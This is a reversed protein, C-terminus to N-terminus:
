LSDVQGSAILTVSDGDDTNFSALEAELKRREQAFKAEAKKREEELKQLLRRRVELPNTAQLQEPTPIDDPEVVNSLCGFKDVVPNKKASVPLPAKFVSQQHEIAPSKVAVTPSGPTTPEDSQQVVSAPSSSPKSSVSGCDSRPSEGGSESKSDYDYDVENEPSRELNEPEEVKVQKSVSATRQRKGNTAQTTAKARKARPPKPPERLEKLTTNFQKSFQYSENYALKLRRSLEQYWHMLIHKPVDPWAVIRECPGLPGDEITVKLQTVGNVEPAEGLIEGIWDREPKSRGGGSVTRGQPRCSDGCNGRRNQGRNNREHGRRQWRPQGSHNATAGLRDHM